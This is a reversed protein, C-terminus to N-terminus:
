LQLKKSWPASCRLKVFSPRPLAFVITASPNLPDPYNQELAFSKPMQSIDIEHIGTIM